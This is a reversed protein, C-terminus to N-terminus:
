DGPSDNTEKVDEIEIKLVEKTDLLKEEHSDVNVKEEENIDDAIDEQVPSGPDIKVDQSRAIENSIHKCSLCLAHEFLKIKADTYAEASWSTCSKSVM